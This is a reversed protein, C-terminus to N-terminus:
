EYKSLGCQKSIDVNVCLFWLLFLIFFFLLFSYFCCCSFLLVIAHFSYFLVWSFFIYCCWSVFLNWLLFLIFCCCPLFCCCSFFQLCFSQFLLLFFSKVVVFQVFVVHIYVSKFFALCNATSHIKYTPFPRAASRNYLVFTM